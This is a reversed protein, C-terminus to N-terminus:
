EGVATEAIEEDPAQKVLLDHVRDDPAFRAIRRPDVRRQVLVNGRREIVELSLKRGVAKQEAVDADGINRDGAEEAVTGVCPKLGVRPTPGRGRREDLSGERM